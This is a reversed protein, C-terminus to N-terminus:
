RRTYSRGQWTLAFLTLDKDCDFTLVLRYDRISRKPSLKLREALENVERTIQYACHQAAIGGAGRPLTFEIQKM